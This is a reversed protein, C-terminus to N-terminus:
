LTLNLFSVNYYFNTKLNIMLVTIQDIVSIMREKKSILQHDKPIIKVM